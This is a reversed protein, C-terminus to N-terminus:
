VNGEQKRKVSSRSKESAFVSNRPRRKRSSLIAPSTGEHGPRLRGRGPAVGGRGTHGASRGSPGAGRGKHGQPGDRGRRAAAAARRGRRRGPRAEARGRQHDGQQAGCARQKGGQNEGRASPGPDTGEPAMRLRPRRSVCRSASERSAGAPHRSQRGPGVHTLWPGRLRDSIKGRSRSKQSGGDHFDYWRCTQQSECCPYERSGRVRIKKVNSCRAKCNGYGTLSTDM